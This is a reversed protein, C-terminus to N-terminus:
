EESEAELIAHAKQMAEYYNDGTSYEPWGGTITRVNDRVETEDIIRGHPRNIQIVRPQEGTFLTRLLEGKRNYFNVETFRTDKPIDTGKVIFSM